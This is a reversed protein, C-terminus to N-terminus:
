VFSDAYNLTTMTGYGKHDGTGNGTVKFAKSMLNDRHGRSPLGDDIFLATVIEEATESGYSINEGSTNSKGFSDMRDFANGHGTQGM